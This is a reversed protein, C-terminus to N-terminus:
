SRDSQGLENPRITIEVRGGLATVVDVLTSLRLDRRAALLYTMTMPAKGARRAAGRISVDKADIFADVKQSLDLLLQELAEAQRKVVAPTIREDSKRVRRHTRHVQGSARSLCATIDVGNISISTSGVARMM